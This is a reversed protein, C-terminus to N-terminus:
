GEWTGGGMQCSSPLSTLGDGSREYYSASLGPQGFIGKCSGQNPSPCADMWTVEGAKGSGIKASGEALSECLKRHMEESVSGDAQLCDRSRIREGFLEFEGAIMCARTKGGTTAVPAPAAADSSAAEEAPAAADAPVAEAQGTEGANAPATDQACGAAALALIMAAALKGRHLM